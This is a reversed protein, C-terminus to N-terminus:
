TESIYSTTKELTAHLISGALPTLIKWDDKWLDCELLRECIGEITYDMDWIRETEMWQGGQPIWDYENPDTTYIDVVWSDKYGNAIDDKSLNVGGDETAVYLVKGNWLYLSDSPYETWKTEPTYEAM